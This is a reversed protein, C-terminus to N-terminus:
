FQITDIESAVDREATSTKLAALLLAIKPTMRRRAGEIYAMQVWIPHRSLLLAALETNAPIYSELVNQALEALGMNRSVAYLFLHSANVNALSPPVTQLHKLIAICTYMEVSTVTLQRLEEAGALALYHMFDESARNPDLAIMATAFEENGKSMLGQRVLTYAGKLQIARVANAMQPMLVADEDTEAVARTLEQDVAAALAPTPKMAVLQWGLQAALPRGSSILSRFLDAPPHKPTSAYLNVANILQHHELSTMEKAIRAEVKAGAADLQKRRKLLRKVDRLTNGGFDIGATIAEDLEMANTVTPPKVPEEARKDDPNTACGTAAAALLFGVLVRTALHKLSRM